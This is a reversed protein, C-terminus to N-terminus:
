PLLLAGGAQLPQGHAHVGVWDRCPDRGALEWQVRGQFCHDAMAMVLAVVAALLRLSCWVRQTQVGPEAAPSSHPCLAASYLM